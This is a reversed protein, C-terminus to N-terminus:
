ENNSEKELSDLFNRIEGSGVYRVLLKLIESIPKKELDTTIHDVYFKSLDLPPNHLKHMNLGKLKEMEYHYEKNYFSNTNKPRHRFYYVMNDIHTEVVLECEEIPINTAKSYAAAMIELHLKVGDMFEKMWRHIENHEELNFM